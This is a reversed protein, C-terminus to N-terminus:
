SDGFALVTAIAPYRGFVRRRVDADWSTKAAPFVPTTIVKHVIAATTPVGAEPRSV